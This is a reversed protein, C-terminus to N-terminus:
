NTHKKKGFSELSNQYISEQMRSWSKSASSLSVYKMLDSFKKIRNKNYMEVIDLRVKRTLDKSKHMKQMETIATVIQVTTLGLSFFM